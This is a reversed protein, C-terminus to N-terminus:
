DSQPRAKPLLHSLQNSRVGMGLGLVALVTGAVISVAGWFEEMQGTQLTAGEGAPCPIGQVRCAYSVAGVTLVGTLYGILGAALLGTGVALIVIRSGPVGYEM